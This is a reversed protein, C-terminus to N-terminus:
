SLADDYRTIKLPPLELSEEVDSDEPNDANDASSQMTSPGEGLQSLFEEQWHKNGLDFCTPINDDEGVRTMLSCHVDRLIQEMLSVLEPDNNDEELQVDLDCFPDKGIDASRVM